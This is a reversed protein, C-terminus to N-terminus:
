LKAQVRAIHHEEIAQQQPSGYQRLLALAQRYKELAAAYQGQREHVSGLFELDIGVQVPRGLRQDIELAETFATIAERMQGADLLLKGLESLTDAAGAENGIRRKIALSDQFCEAAARRHAAAREANESGEARAMENLILGQQHLAAAEYQRHELRRAIELSRQSLSLASELQMKMLHSNALDGLNALVFEDRGLEQSLVLSAELKEISKDVEGLQQYLLGQRNLAASMQQKADLVEFTRYVEEYTALAKDLKGEDVLLIALNGQAVARNASELTEISGRLLAKARDREGWRALVEWVATVIEGAAEFEGAQFLHHQWALACAM